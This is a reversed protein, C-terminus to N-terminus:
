KNNDTPGTTEAVPLLDYVYRPYFGGWLALYKRWLANAQTDATADDLPKYFAILYPRIPQSPNISLLPGSAATYLIPLTMLIGACQMFLKRNIAM